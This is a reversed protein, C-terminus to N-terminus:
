VFGLLQIDPKDNEGEECGNVTSQPNVPVFCAGQPEHSENIAAKLNMDRPM